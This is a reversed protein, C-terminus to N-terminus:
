QEVDPFLIKMYNRKSYIIRDIFIKENDYRYFALYNKYILYRYDTVLDPDFYLPSGIEPQSKLIDIKDLIGNVTNEAAVPNMLDVSIYEWIEDLDALAKPSFVISNM